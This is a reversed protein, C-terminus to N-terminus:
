AGAQADAQANAVRALGGKRGASAKKARQEAIEDATRQHLTYDHMYVGDGRTEVLGAAALEKRAAPTGRKRWSAATILGDTQNRSCWCWAEVLARFAGDSLGEIKPHEPMGDHVTIYTRTDRPM